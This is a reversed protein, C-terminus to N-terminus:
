VVEKQQLHILHPIFFIPRPLVQKGILGQPMGTISTVTIQNLTVNFGSAMFQAPMYFTVNEDYPNNQLGDPLVAPCLAPAAPSITCTQDIICGPCQAKTTQNFVFAVIIILILKKMINKSLDKEFIDIINFLLFFPYNAM